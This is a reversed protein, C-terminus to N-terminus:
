AFVSSSLSDANILASLRLHKISVLLLHVDHDPASCHRDWLLYHTKQSLVSRIGIAIVAKLLSQPEGSPLFGLLGGACQAGTACKDTLRAAAKV